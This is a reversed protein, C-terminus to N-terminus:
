WELWTLPRDFLAGIGYGDIIVIPLVPPTDPPRVSMLGYKSMLTPMPAPVLDDAEDPDILMVWLIRRAM